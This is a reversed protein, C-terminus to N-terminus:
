CTSTILAAYQIGKDSHHILDSTNRTALAMRLAELAIEAALTKAIAYGVVKRSFADLVAALCVFGSM